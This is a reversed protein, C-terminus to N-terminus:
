EHTEVLSLVRLVDRAVILWIKLKQENVHLLLYFQQHQQESTCMHPLRCSRRSSSSCSRTTISSRVSRASFIIESLRIDISYFVPASSRIMESKQARSVRGAHDVSSPDTEDGTPRSLLTVRSRCSAIPTVSLWSSIATRLLWACRARERTRFGAQELLVLTWSRWM